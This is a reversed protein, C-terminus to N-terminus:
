AIQNFLVLMNCLKGNMWWKFTATISLCSYPQQKSTVHFSNCSVVGWINVNGWCFPFSLLNKGKTKSAKGYKLRNFYFNTIKLKKKFFNDFLHLILSRAFIFLGWVKSCKKIYIVVSCQFQFINFFLKVFHIGFLTFAIGM